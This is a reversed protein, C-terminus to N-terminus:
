KIVKGYNGGGGSNINLNGNRAAFIVDAINENSVNVINQYKSNHLIEM